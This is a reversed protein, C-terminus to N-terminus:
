IGRLFNTFYQLRILIRKDSGCCQKYTTPALLLYATNHSQRQGMPGAVSLFIFFEFLTPQFFTFYNQKKLRICVYKENLTHLFQQFKVFIIIITVVKGCCFEKATPWVAFAHFKKVPEMVSCILIVTITGLIRLHYKM